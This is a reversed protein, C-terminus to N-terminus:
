SRRLSTFLALVTQINSLKVPNRVHPLPMPPRPYASRTFWAPIDQAECVMTHVATYGPRVHNGPTRSARNLKLKMYRTESYGRVSCGSLASWAKLLEAIPVAMNFVFSFPTKDYLVTPITSLGLGYRNLGRLGEGDVTYDIRANHEWKVNGRVPIMARNPGLNPATMNGALTVPLDRSYASEVVVSARSVLLPASDFFSGDVNMDLARTAGEIDYITPMIGYKWELFAGATEKLFRETPRRGDRTRGNWLFYFSEPKRKAVADLSRGLRLLNTSLTNATGSLEAFVMAVDFVEDRVNNLVKMRVENSFDPLGPLPCKAVVSGTSRLTDTSGPLSGGEYHGVVPYSGSTISGSLGLRYGPVASWNSPKRYGDFQRPNSVIKDPTQCFGYGSDSRTYTTSKGYRDTLVATNDVVHAVTGYLM